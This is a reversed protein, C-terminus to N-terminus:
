APQVLVTAMASTAAAGDTVIALVHYLGPAQPLCVIAPTNQPVCGLPLGIYTYNLGNACSSGFAHAQTQIVLQHGVMPFTPTVVLNAVVTCDVILGPFASAHGVPSPAPMPAPLVETRVQTHAGAAGGLAMAGFLTTALLAPLAIALVLSTKM